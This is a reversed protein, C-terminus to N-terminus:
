TINNNESTWIFETNDNFQIELRCIDYYIWNAPSVWINGPKPSYTNGVEDTITITDHQPLRLLAKYLERGVNAIIRYKYKTIIKEAIWIGNKEEGVEEVEHTPTHLRTELFCTQIFSDHYLIDGLDHTDNFVLKLFNPSYARILLIESTFFDSADTNIIKLLATTSSKTVTMSIVNLGAALQTSASLPDTGTSDSELLVSPLQGSTLSLYTILTIVEGKIVNSFVDSYSYANGALNIYSIITTGSVQSTDYDTSTGKPNTILNNFIDTVIFWDSYYICGNDMTIKMYFTGFPLLYNLTDGKYQFYVDASLAHSSPLSPFLGNMRNTAINIGTFSFSVASTCDIGIFGTIGATVTYNFTNIGEQLTGIVGVLGYASTYLLLRVASVGSVRHFVGNINLIEGTTLVVNETKALCPNSLSIASSINLGISILTDFPFGGVNTWTYYSIHSKLWNGNKDIGEIKSVTAAGDADDKWQFAPLRFRPTLVPMQTGTRSQDRKELSDYIPLITHITKM